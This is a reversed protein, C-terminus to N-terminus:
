ILPPLNKTKQNNNSQSTTEAVLVPIRGIFSFIIQFFTAFLKIVM